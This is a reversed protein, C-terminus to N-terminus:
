QQYTIKIKISRGAAAVRYEGMECFQWIKHRRFVGHQPKPPVRVATHATISIISTLHTSVGM